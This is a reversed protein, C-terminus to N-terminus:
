PGAAGHAPSRTPPAPRGGRRECWRVHPDADPWASVRLQTTFVGAGVGADDGAPGSAPHLPRGGDTDRVAKGRRGAERDRSATGPETPVRGLRPESQDGAVARESVSLGEVTMGDIGAAGGNAEVGKLAAILNERGWVQEWVSGGGTNSEGKDRAPSPEARQGLGVPKVGKAQGAPGRDPSTQRRHEDWSSSL